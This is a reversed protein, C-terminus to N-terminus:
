TPHGWVVIENLRLLDACFRSGATIKGSKMGSSRVKIAFTLKAGLRPVCVFGPDSPKELGLGLATNKRPVSILM